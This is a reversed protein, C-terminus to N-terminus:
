QQNFTAHADYRARNLFLTSLDSDPMKSWEQFYTITQEIFLEKALRREEESVLHLPQPSTGGTWAKITKVSKEEMGQNIPNFNLTSLAAYV